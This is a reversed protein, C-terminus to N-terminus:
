WNPLDEYGELSMSLVEVSVRVSAFSDVSLEIECRVPQTTGVWSYHKNWDFEYVDLDEVIYTDSKHVYGELECELSVHGRLLYRSKTVERVDTIELNSSDLVSNFHLDEYQWWLHLDEAYMTKGSFTENAKITITDMLDVDLHNLVEAPYSEFVNTLSPRIYRDLFGWLSTVLIVDSKDHGRDTLDKRLQPHLKRNRDRFDKDDTVFVIKRNYKNLLDIISHWILADRYGSGQSDFPRRRTVAQAVLEKHSVEPYPAIICHANCLQTHLRSRFSNVEQGQDLDDISSPVPKQLHQRLQRLTAKIEQTNCGLTREFKAVVEEIVSEPIYVSHGVIESSSLFFRFLASNGFGASIITSADLMVLM